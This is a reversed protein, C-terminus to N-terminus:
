QQAPFRYISPEFGDRAIVIKLLMLGRIIDTTVRDLHTTGRAFM